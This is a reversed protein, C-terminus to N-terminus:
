ICWVVSTPSESCVSSLASCMDLKNAASRRGDVRRELDARCSRWCLPQESINVLSAPPGDLMQVAVHSRSLKNSVNIM